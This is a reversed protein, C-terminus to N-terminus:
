PRWSPAYWNTDLTLGPAALIRQELTELNVVFLHGGTPSTTEEILLFRGDPSFLIRGVTVGHYVQTM